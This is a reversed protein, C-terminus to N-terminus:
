AFWRLSVTVLASFLNLSMLAPVDSYETLDCDTVVAGAHSDGFNFFDAVSQAVAVRPDIWTNATAANPVTGDQPLRQQFRIEVKLNYDAEGDYTDFESELPGARVTVDLSTLADLDSIIEAQRRATFTPSWTTGNLADVVAQTITTVAIM